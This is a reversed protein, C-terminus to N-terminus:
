KNNEEKGIRELYRRRYAIVTDLHVKFDRSLKLAREWRYGDIHMKIARYYFKNQTYIQEAENQKRFLLALAANKIIESSSERIETIYAVKEPQEIAAFSTEAADFQKVKISIAALCAWLLPEKVFRCLKMAKDWKSKDCFDFLIIPYPSNGVTVVGGDRRRITVQAGSYNIIQPLRGLEVVEKTNVTMELLNSDIYVVNPYYYVNLKSDSISSLIDFKDHWLFSDCITSLKM